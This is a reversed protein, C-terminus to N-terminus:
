LQLAPDVYFGTRTKPPPHVWAASSSVLVVVGKEGDQGEGEMKIMHPLCQRVLDVSGRVNVAMVFDFGDMGMMDGHRDIIKAPTSVGAAAVVGGIGKGTEKTWSVTSAIASAISESSSVDTAFFRTRDSPFTSVVQAGADANMDLISADTGFRGISLLRGVPCLSGAIASVIADVPTWHPISM